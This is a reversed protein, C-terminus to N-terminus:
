PQTQKQFPLLDATQPDCISIDAPSSTFWLDATQLFFVTQKDIDAAYGLWLWGCGVMVMVWWFCQSGGCDVTVWWLWRSGGCGVTLM